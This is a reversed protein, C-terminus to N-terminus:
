VRRGLHKRPGVCNARRDPGRFGIGARGRRYLPYFRGRGFGIPGAARTTGTGPHAHFSGARGHRPIRVGQPSPFPVVGQQQQLSHPGRRLSRSLRAARNAAAAGSFFCQRSAPRGEPRHVPGILAFRWAPRARAMEAILEMDFWTGILGHYGVTIEGRPLDSPRPLSKGGSSFISLDVGNPAMVIRRAKPRLRELLTKSVTFVIDAREIINEQAHEIGQSDEHFSPFDDMCDYVIRSAPLRDVAGLALPSPSGIWLLPQPRGAAELAKRLGKLVRRLLYGNVLGMRRFPLYLPNIVNVSHDPTPKSGASFFSRAKDAVRRM